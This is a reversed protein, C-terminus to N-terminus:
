HLHAPPEDEISTIPVSVLKLMQHQIEATTYEKQFGRKAEFILLILEEGKLFRSFQSVYQEVFSFIQGHLGDSDESSCRVLMNDGDRMFCILPVDSNMITYITREQQQNDQQLQEEMYPMIGTFAYYFYAVDLIAELLYEAYELDVELRFQFSLGVYNALKKTLAELAVLDINDSFKETVTLPEYRSTKFQHTGKVILYSQFLVSVETEWTGEEAGPGIITEFVELEDIKVIPFQM